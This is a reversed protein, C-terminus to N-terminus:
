RAWVSPGTNDAGSDVVAAEAPSATIFYLDDHADYYEIVPMTPASTLTARLPVAFLVSDYPSFISLLYSVTFNTTTTTADGAGATTTSSVNTLYPLMDPAYAGYKPVGVSVPDND